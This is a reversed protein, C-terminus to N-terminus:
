VGWWRGRVWEVERETRRWGGSEESRGKNRVYVLEDGRRQVRVKEETKKKEKLLATYPAERVKVRQSHTDDYYGNAYHNHYLVSKSHSLDYALSRHATEAASHSHTHTLRSTFWSPLHHSYTESAYSTGYRTTYHTPDVLRTLHPKATRSTDQYNSLERRMSRADKSGLFFPTMAIRQTHPNIPAPVTRVARSLLACRGAHYVVNLKVPKNISTLSM